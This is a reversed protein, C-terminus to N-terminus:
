GGKAPLGVGCPRLPWIRVDVRRGRSRRMTAGKIIRQGACCESGVEADAEPESHEPLSSSADQDGSRQADAQTVRLVDPAPPTPVSKSNERRRRKLAAKERKMQKRERKGLRRGPAVPEHRRRCRGM